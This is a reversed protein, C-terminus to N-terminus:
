GNSEVKDDSNSKKRIPIGRESKLIFECVKRVAEFEPKSDLIELALKQLSIKASFIKRYVSSVADIEKSELIKRMRHKNLGRVVARNGEAMCFPPLDQTLASAGAVMAGEGIKCFQHVPTMGGINVYDAVEVHGGLTANNAFICNNGVVCDHAIHVFAMFLNNNGIITKQIGGATGPNFMCHERIINNDGIILSTKEGAYKLDQPQTGLVAYPFIVNNAGIITEGLLTVNNYLKTNDGIVVDDGIVCFDGIEVNKGIKAEKSIIATKAIKESM